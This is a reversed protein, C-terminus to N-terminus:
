LFNLGGREEESNDIINNLINCRRVLELCNEILYYANLTKIEPLYEFKLTDLRNLVDDYRIGWYSNSYSVVYCYTSYNYIDHYIVRGIVICERGDNKICVDPNIKVIDGLNFKANTFDTIM